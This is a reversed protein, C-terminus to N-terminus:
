PVYLYRRAVRRSGLVDHGLQRRIEWLFSFVEPVIHTATTTTTTTMETTTRANSIKTANLLRETTDGNRAFRDYTEYRFATFRFERPPRPRPRKFNIATNVQQIPVVTVTRYRLAAPIYGSRSIRLSFRLRRRIKPNGNDKDRRLLRERNNNIADV